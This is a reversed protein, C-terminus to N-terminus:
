KKLMILDGQQQVRGAKLDAHFNVELETPLSGPTLEVYGSAGESTQLPFRQVREATAPGSFDFRVTPDAKKGSPLRFRAYFSGKVVGNDEHVALDGFEPKVGTFIGTEPFSWTGTYRSLPDVPAPTAPKPAAAPVSLAALQALQQYYAAWAHAEQGALASVELMSQNLEMDDQAMAARARESELQASGAKTAVASRRDMAANLDALAARERELAQRVQAIGKSRDKEYLKLNADASKIQSATFLHFDHNPTLDTDVVVPEDFRDAKKHIAEASNRLFTAHSTGYRAAENAVNQIRDAFPTASAAQPSATLDKELNPDRQRWDAYASRYSDRTSQATLLLACAAAAGIAMTARRIATTM